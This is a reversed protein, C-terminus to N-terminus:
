AGPVEPTQPHSTAWFLGLFWLTALAYRVLPQALDLCLVAVLALSCTLLSGPLLGHPRRWLALFVPLLLLVFAIFLPLATM